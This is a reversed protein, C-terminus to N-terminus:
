QQMGYKCIFYSDAIDSAPNMTTTDLLSFLPAETEKIFQEVIEEKKANGKGIMEKKIVTPPVVTFPIEKRTLKHKLLGTNEGIHFVKGTAGFAYDEIYVHDITYSDIIDMAWKMIHAYQHTKSLFDKTKPLLYGNFACKGSENYEVLKKVRTLYHFDYDDGVSVCICPSATSYDIGVIVKSNMEM